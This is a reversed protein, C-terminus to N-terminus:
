ASYPPIFFSFQLPFSLGDISSPLISLHRHFQAYFSAPMAGAPQQSLQSSHHPHYHHHHPSPLAPPPAQHHHHHHHHQHRLRGTLLSQLEELNSTTATEGSGGSSCGHNPTPHGSTTLAVKGADDGAPRRNATPGDDNNPSPPLRDVPALDGRSRGLINDISFPTLRNTSTLGDQQQQQSPVSAVARDGVKRNSRDENMTRRRQFADCKFMSARLIRNYKVWKDLIGSGGTSPNVSYM